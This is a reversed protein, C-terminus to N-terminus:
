NGAQQHVANPFGRFEGAARSGADPRFGIWDNGDPDVMAAIGGGFQELFYTAASTEIKFFTLGPSSAITADRTLRVFPTRPPNPARSQPLCAVIMSAVAGAVLVRVFSGRRRWPAGCSPLTANEALLFDSASPYTRPM